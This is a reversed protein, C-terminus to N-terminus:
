ALKVRKLLGKITGEIVFLDSLLQLIPLWFLSAVPVYKANKHTAWVLYAAFLGLSGYALIYSGMYVGMCFLFIGLAYRVFILGVKPRLIGSYADGRAFRFIMYLFANLDERPQWKVTAKPSYVIGITKNNRLKELKKAFAYDENDSLTEDFGGLEQLLSKSIMMSRTAPLFTEPNVKDPMVLVYPVVASQFPTIHPAAKAAGAVVIKKNGGNSKELEELWQKEPECGADTIAIMESTALRIAENRGISRNGKKQVIKLEFPLKQQKYSQLLEWTEDTSGGDVIIVEKPVKTQQILAELLISITKEENLVTCIVSSM